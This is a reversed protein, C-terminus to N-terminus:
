LQTLRQKIATLAQEYDFPVTLEVHAPLEKKCAEFQDQYAPIRAIIRETDHRKRREIRAIAEAPDITIRVIIPTAKMKKCRELFTLWNRDISADFVILKNPHDAFIKEIAAGAIERPNLLEIGRRRAAERIADNQIYQAQLDRALRVALVTKGSGPIGCFAIMAAPRPVTTYKLQQMTENLLKTYLEDTM